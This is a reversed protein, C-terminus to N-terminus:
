TYFPGYRRLFHPGVLKTVSLPFRRWVRRLLQVPPSELPASPPMAGRRLHVRYSLLEPEFGWLRKYEYAGSGQKSRGFDFVRYGRARAWRMLEWYMFDNVADRRFERRNGAYYPLITDAFLFSLVAAAPQGARWVTLLVTEDPFQSLLLRFYRYPFAPTGLNRLSRAFLDHFVPLDDQSVRATLAARQGIRVMRRRKRPLAALEADDTALLPRRFRFYTGERRQFRAGVRTDRLEIYRVGCRDGRAVAAEELADAAADDASCIGGEVAFPLSQLCHPAGRARLEFLPLGGVMQGARRAVLYHSTFGFARELVEKWGILHFFTGGQTCRVFNDWETRTASGERLSPNGYTMRSAIARLFFIM